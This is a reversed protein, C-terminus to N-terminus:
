WRVQKCWAGSRQAGSFGGKLHVGAETGTPRAAERLGASEQQCQTEGDPLRALSPELPLPLLDCKVLLGSCVQDFSAVNLGPVLCQGCCASLRQLHSAQLIFHGPHLLLACVPSVGPLALGQPVPSVGLLPSCCRKKM